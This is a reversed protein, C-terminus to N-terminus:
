TRPLTVCFRAGVPTTDLRVSGGMARCLTKVIWLGVGLGSAREPGRHDFPEFLYERQAEPVGPGHDIVILEAHVAGRVIVQVLGGGSYRIANTVLADIIQKVRQRDWNGTVGPDAQLELEVGGALAQPDLQTVVQRALEGLDSFSPDLAVEGHRLQAVETLRDVTTTLKRVYKALLSHAPDAQLEYREVLLVLPSLSNRLEHALMHIFEDRAAVAGELETVYSM